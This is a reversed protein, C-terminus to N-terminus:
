PGTRHYSFKTIDLCVCVCMCVSLCVTVHFCVVGRGSDATDRGTLM